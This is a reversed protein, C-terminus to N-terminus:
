NAEIKKKLEEKSFINQLQSLSSEERLDAGQIRLSDLNFKFEVQFDTLRELEWSVTKAFAAFGGSLFVRKSEKLTRETSGIGRFVLESPVSFINCIHSGALENLTQLMGVSNNFDLKEIKYGSPLALVSKGISQSEGEFFMRLAQKVKKTEAAGTKLDGGLGSLLLPPKLDGRSISELVSSILSASNFSQGFCRLFRNEQELANTVNYLSSRIYMIEDSSFKRSKYDQFFFGESLRLPDIWDASSTGKEAKKKEEKLPYPTIASSDIFPILETIEKGDNKIYCFFGDFLFFNQVLIEFFNVRSMFSCPQRNILKLLPHEKNSCELPCATIYNVYLQLCRASIPNFAGHYKQGGTTPSTSYPVYTRDEDQERTHKKRKFWKM